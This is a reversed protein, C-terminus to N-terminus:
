CSADRRVDFSEQRRKSDVALKKKLQRFEPDEVYRRRDHEIANLFRDIELAGKGVLVYLHDGRVEARRGTWLFHRLGSRQALAIANRKLKVSRLDLINTRRILGWVSDFDSEFPIGAWGKHARAVYVLPKRVRRLTKRVRNDALHAARFEPDDRYRMSRAVSVRQRLELEAYICRALPGRMMYLRNWNTTRRPSVILYRFGAARACASAARVSTCRTGDYMEALRVLGWAAVFDSEYPVGTWGTHFADIRM